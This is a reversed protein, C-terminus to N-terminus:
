PKHCLVANLQLAAASDTQLLSSHVGIGARYKIFRINKAQPLFANPFKLYKVKIIHWRMAQITYSLYSM